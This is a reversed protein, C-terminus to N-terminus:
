SVLLFRQLIIQRPATNEPIRWTPKSTPTTPPRGMSGLINSRDTSVDDFSRGIRTSSTLSAVSLSIDSMAPRCFAAGSASVAWGSGPRVIAKSVGSGAVRTGDGFAVCGVGTVRLGRFGSTGDVIAGFRGGALVTTTTVTGGSTRGAARRGGGSGGFFGSARFLGRM